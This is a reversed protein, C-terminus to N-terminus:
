PRKLWPATDAVQNPAMLRIDGYWARVSSRTNDSDTMIALNLLAGPAEGFAKEFDARIDREYLLWQKLRKGGSEVVLKRIRDSRPNNIVSEVPRQNCWVYMLTAYPLPEGTLAQTLESLMANKGSFRSRDGDFTLILRVPSDEAERQAMDAGAILNEVQWQFQLRGLQDPPLNLRQRLLSASSEAQAQVAPRNQHRELRFATRLKGPLQVKEWRVSADPTFHLVGQTPQPIKADSRGPADITSCGWLAFLLSGTFVLRGWFWRSAM